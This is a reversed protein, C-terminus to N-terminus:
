VRFGVGSVGLGIVQFDKLDLLGRRRLCQGVRNKKFGIGLARRVTPPAPSVPPPIRSAPVM